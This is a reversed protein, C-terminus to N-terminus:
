RGFECEACDPCYFLLKEEPGGDIWYAQWRAEDAPLWVACCEIRHPVLPVPETRISALRLLRGSGQASVRGAPPAAAFISAAPISGASSKM